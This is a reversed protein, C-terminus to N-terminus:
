WPFPNRKNPKPHYGRDYPNPDEQPIQEPHYGRDYPNPDSVEINPLQSEPIQTQSLTRRKNINIFNEYIAQILKPSVQILESSQTKLELTGKDLVRGAIAYNGGPLLYVGKMLYKPKKPEQNEM